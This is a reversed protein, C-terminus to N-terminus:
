EEYLKMVLKKSKKNRFGLHAYWFGDDCCRLIIQTSYRGTKRNYVYTYYDGKKGDPTAKYIEKTIYLPRGYPYIDIRVSVHRKLEFKLINYTIPDFDLETINEKM